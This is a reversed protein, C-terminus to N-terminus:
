HLSITYKVSVHLNTPKPNPKSVALATQFDVSAASVYKTVDLVQDTLVLTKGSHTAPLSAITTFTPEGTVRMGFDAQTVDDFSIAADDALTLKLTNLTVSKVASKDSSFGHAKLISDLTASTFTKAYTKSGAVPTMDITYDFENGSSIQIADALKPCLGFTFMCFASLAVFVIKLRRM